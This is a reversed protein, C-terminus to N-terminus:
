FIIWETFCVGRCSTVKLQNEPNSDLSTMEQDINMCLPNNGGISECAYCNITPVEYKTAQVCTVVLFTRFIM